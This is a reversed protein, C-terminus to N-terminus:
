IKRVNLAQTFRPEAVGTGYVWRFGEFERVGYSGVEIGNIEIDIEMGGAGTAVTDVKIESAFPNHKVHAKHFFVAARIMDDLAKIEDVPHVHMLEVKFFHQLHLYDHEKEDRFCPTACVYKQNHNLSGRIDLLSQEGSAVLCGAFTDFNRAEPPKTIEITRKSVFWPVDMEKYKHLNKYYALAEGILTYNIM